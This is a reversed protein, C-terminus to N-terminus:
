WFRARGTDLHIFDSKPYYGVGGAHMALAVQRLQKLEIGPLRLDIARGQMHLSRKAVGTSTHQLRANTKPSRYGSIVHIHGNYNINHQLVSLQNLLRKDISAVTDTRHDRLVHNIAALEEPIYQGEIWYTASLQEGTHLNYFRLRREDARGPRARVVPSALTALAATSALLFQRRSMM